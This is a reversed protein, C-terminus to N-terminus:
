WSRSRGLLWDIDGPLVGGLSIVRNVLGDNALLNVWALMRMM